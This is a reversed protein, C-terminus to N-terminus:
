SGNRPLPVVSAAASSVSRVQRPRSSSAFYTSTTIWRQCVNAPLFAVRSPSPLVESSIAWSRRFAAAHISRQWASIAPM